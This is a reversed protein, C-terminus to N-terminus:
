DSGPEERRTDSARARRRCEQQSVAPRQGSSTICSCQGTDVSEACFVRDPEDSQFVEPLQFQPRGSADRWSDPIPRDLALWAGLGGAIVVMLTMVWPRKWLPRNDIM